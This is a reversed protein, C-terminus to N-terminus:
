PYIAESYETLSLTQTEDGNPRTSEVRWVTSNLESDTAIFYRSPSQVNKRDYINIDFQDAAATFAKANGDVPLARWRGRYDGTSDTMVVWMEGASFDIRESTLFVDGNRGKLYGTQQANDYMDPCQVVSGRVVQTSELVKVTMTVRSYLLKRAELLARDLAQAYNRCGDLTIQLANITADQAETIGSEDVQLYIYFKKNTSPDVYDLTVGDYGGPLSMSWNIKYDEWFMNSRSFVADPYDVKEDRWFTLVDGINNGDVRAVDCITALRERLSLKEDSFTYDFYALQPDTISDAIAYLAAVDLSNVDQKGIVIWEHLVADAFSRSPRLTYDVQGSSRDYTITHRQALMNYKQERNSNSDNAGKITVRAITDDPYIVGERINVAHIAMLTVVNQDNANDTREITVAYRGFGGTPTYKYTNRFYKTTQKTNNDFFYDYQEQTGPVQNNDDDLKWFKIRYKTTGALPGLQVLVHVWVQESEVPSISPGIVLAAQDNITFLTQNIVADAPIGTIEGSLDGIYFTTYSLTDDGIYNEVAIINGSGNVDRTVNQGGQSWTANIVFTVPHPLSLAEFYSFNDAESPVTAKIQNSVVSVSTPSTTTATQAPFDDSENLGPVGENDVDDFQYGVDINGIPVGPNFIQYSAGALSGLNSESYRVSSITYRGVGVEFWETIYKNNDTFEFLAEQILDPFVRCQGYINPKGKYLRARNSQGTLDNNPSEGTSISPSSANKQGLLGSLVNKTFKIPNLHEIPNLLTKILGGGLPQDFVSLFDGDKLKYDIDFEDPIIKGNLKVIVNNHLNMNNLVSVLSLGSEKCGNEKPAGPLRQIEYRFM